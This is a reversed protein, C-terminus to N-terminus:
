KTMFRRADRPSATSNPAATTPSSCLATANNSDGFHWALNRLPLASQHAGEMVGVLLCAAPVSRNWGRNNCPDPVRQSAVAAVELRVTAPPHGAQMAPRVNFLSTNLRHADPAARCQQSPHQGSPQRPLRGDTHVPAVANVGYKLPSVYQEALRPPVPNRSIPVEM